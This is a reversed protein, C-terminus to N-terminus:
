QCQDHRAQTAPGHLHRQQLRLIRHQQHFYHKVQLLRRSSPHSQRLVLTPRHTTLCGLTSTQSTRRFRYRHRLLLACSCPDHHRLTYSGHRRDQQLHHSTSSTDLRSRLIIQSQLNDSLCLITETFSLTSHVLQLLSPNSVADGFCPTLCRYICGSGIRRVM